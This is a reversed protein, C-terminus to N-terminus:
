LSLETERCIHTMNPFLDSSTCHIEDRWVESPLIAVQTHWHLSIVFDFITRYWLSDKPRAPNNLCLHINTSHETDLPEDDGSCQEQADERALDRGLFTQYAQRRGHLHTRLPQQRSPSCLISRRHNCRLRATSDLRALRYNVDACPVDTGNM